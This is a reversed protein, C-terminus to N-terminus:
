HSSQFTSVSGVETEDSLAESSLGTRKRQEAAYRWKLAQENNLQYIMALDEPSGRGVPTVRVQVLAGRFLVEANAESGLPGINRTLRLRNIEDFVAAAPSLLTSASKVINRTDTGRLLWMRIIASESEEPEEPEQQIQPDHQAPIPLPPLGLVRRWDPKWRSKDALEEECAQMENASSSPLDRPFYPAGAEFSQHQRERQGGVRTGTYVLSNLFPMSWGKPVILVWGHLNPNDAPRQGPVTFDSNSPASVSRQILLVPVRNDKKTAKLKTGPVSSKVSHTFV